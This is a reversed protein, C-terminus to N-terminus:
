FKKLKGAAESGFLGSPKLLLVILLVVRPLANKYHSSLYGATLSEMTGLLIGAVVAGANNGLGGLVAAGFGKIGFMAGSQYDVMSIPMIVAGAMAGIAASLGFSFMVMRKTPIGMLSAATSNFACARIAKGALTFNFFVILGAVVIVLVGLVWFTQTPVMVGAMEVATNGGSFYEITHVEKGAIFMTIGKMLISVAITIMILTLISPKKLTSICGRELLIGIITVLIVTIVFALALPWQLTASFFVMLMGGLMVFEGQAFNIIGTANYIINFGLAVLAYISGMSIGSVINEFFRENM